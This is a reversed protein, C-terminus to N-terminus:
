LINKVVTSIFETNSPKSIVDRNAPFLSEIYELNGKSWAVEIANRIAREVRTHTAKFERATKEYITKTMSSIASFDEVVLSIAYILYHYGKLHEPMGIRNLIEVIKEEYSKEPIKSIIEEEELKPEDYDLILLQRIRQVFDKLNFPKEVFFEAGLTLALKITKEQGLASLVIIHPKKKMDSKIKELVSFGDLRPMVIDMIILDPEKEIILNVADIGNDAIGDLIFEDFNSLYSCLIETLDKNDDAIIYHVKNSPM